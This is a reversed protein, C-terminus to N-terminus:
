VPVPGGLAGLFRALWVAFLLVATVVMVATAGPVRSSAGWEGRRVYGVLELAFFAFFLPVVVWVLPHMATAAGLEGHVALKTARTMGCTPCPVGFLTAVPCPWRLPTFAFLGIGLAFLAPVIWRRSV